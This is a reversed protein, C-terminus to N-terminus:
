RLSVFYNIIEFLINLLVLKKIYLIQNKPASNRETFNEGKSSSTLTFNLSNNRFIYTISDTNIDMSSSLGSNYNISIKNTQDSLIVSNINPALVVLKKSSSPIQPVTVIDISNTLTSNDVSKIAKTITKPLDSTKSEAKDDLTSNFNSDSFEEFVAKIANAM